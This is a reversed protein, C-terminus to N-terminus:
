FLTYFICKKEKKQLFIHGPTQSHCESQSTGRRCVLAREACGAAVGCQWGFNFACRMNLSLCRVNIFMSRSEEGGIFLKSVFVTYTIFSGGGALLLVNVGNYETPIRYTISLGDGFGRNLVYSWLGRRWKAAKWDFVCLDPKNEFCMLDNVFVYEQNKVGSRGCWSVGM